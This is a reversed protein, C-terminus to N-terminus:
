HIYGRYSPDFEKIIKPPRGGLDGRAMVGELLELPGRAAMRTAPHDEGFLEKSIEYVLRRTQAEDLCGLSHLYEHLLIVFIYSKVEIGEKAGARMAELAIRNMVIFNSGFSHFAGINPPLDALVLTLGARGKGLIAKVAKKVICFIDQFDESESLELPATRFDRVLGNPNPESSRAANM